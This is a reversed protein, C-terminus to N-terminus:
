QGPPLPASGPSFTPVVQIINVAVWPVLYAIALVAIAQFAGGSFLAAVELILIALYALIEGVECLTSGTSDPSEDCDNLIAIGIGGLILGTVILAVLVTTFPDNGSLASLGSDQLKRVHDTMAQRAAIAGVAFVDAPLMSGATAGAEMYLGGGNSFASVVRDFTSTGLLEGVNAPPTGPTRLVIPAAAPTGSMGGQIALKGGQLVFSGSFNNMNSTVASAVTDSLGHAQLGTRVTSNANVWVDNWIQQASVPGTTGLVTTMRAMTQSWFSTQNVQQILRLGAAAGAQVDDLAQAAQTQVTREFSQTAGQNQAKATRAAALYTQYSQLSIARQQLVACDSRLTTRNVPALHPGTRSSAAQIYTQLFDAAM